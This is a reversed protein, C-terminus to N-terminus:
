ALVGFPTLMFYVLPACTALVIGSTDGVRRARMSAATVIAAVALVVYAVFLVVEAVTHQPREKIAAAIASVIVYDIM